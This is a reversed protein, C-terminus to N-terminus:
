CYKIYLHKGSRIPSFQIVKYSSLRRLKAKVKLLMNPASNKYLVHPIIPVRGAGRM